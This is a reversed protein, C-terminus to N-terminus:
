KDYALGAVSLMLTKLFRQQQFPEIIYEVFLKMEMIFIDETVQIDEMLELLCEELM